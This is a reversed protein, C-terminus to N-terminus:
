GTGFAATIHLDKKLDIKMDRLTLDGLSFAMLPVTTGNYPQIKKQVVGAAATGIMGEGECKLGSVTANLDDDIELNGTIRIVGSMLMKRAKVRVDAAISRPGTSKLELDLDQVTTGQQKAAVAAAETVIAEIDQKSIRADVKGSKADTLVLVNKGKKDRDFDFKLGAASLKLNLKAQEYQIPQGSLELKDVRVGPERKGVGIAKPPPKNAVVTAGDLDIKVTKISPFKGGDISVGADDNPLSFVQTLSENLSEQLEDASSPLKKGSLPLM